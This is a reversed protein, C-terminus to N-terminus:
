TCFAMEGVCVVIHSGCVCTCVSEFVDHTGSKFDVEVFDTAETIQRAHPGIFSYLGRGYARGKECSECQM